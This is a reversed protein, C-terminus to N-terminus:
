YDYKHALPGNVRETHTHASSAAPEPRAVLANASAGRGGDLRVRVCNAELSLRDIQM